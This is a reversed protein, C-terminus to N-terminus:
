KQSTIEQLVANFCEFASQAALETGIGWGGADGGVMYLGKIPLSVSPRKAGVQNAIQSIGIISAEKGYSNYIDEPTTIDYWLMNESLKPFVKELSNFSNEIWKDKNKEFNNRMVPTGATLLQTGKPAMSQHYNSPIPIFYNIEEPVKGKMITDYYEEPNGSGISIVVKYPTIQKKLAIKITLASLSYELGNIEKLFNNEFHKSGVLDYVTNKIGGNSIVIKSTIQDGNDLEIGTAEGDEVLIKTVENKIMLKGGHKKMGNIFALPISICGGEPYGVRQEKNLSTLCRIFEGTSAQYYPVVFYLSCLMSIYRQVLPNTTFKSLWSEVDLGDLLSAEDKLKIAENGLKILGLFESKPIIKAFDNPFDYFDGNYYWSADGKNMISWNIADKMGIKELVKRLPGKDSRAFTHVGIDIKFGEKEYTSCRGGVNENKEFLITKLNESALLAGLATGGIGSGVIIADFEVM